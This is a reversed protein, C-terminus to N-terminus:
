RVTAKNGGWHLYDLLLEAFDSDLPLEDESYETKVTKVRSHVVARAVKM